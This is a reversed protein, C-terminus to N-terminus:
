YIQLSSFKLNVTLSYIGALNKIQYQYQDQDPFGAKKALFINKVRQWM